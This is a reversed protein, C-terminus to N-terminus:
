SAAAAALTPSFERPRSSCSELALCAILAFATLKSNM